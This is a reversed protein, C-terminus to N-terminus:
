PIAQDVLEPAVIRRRAGRLRKLHMHRAEAALQAVDDDRVAATIQDADLGALEVELAELAERGLAPRCESVPLRLACGLAQAFRELQPAARRQRVESVLRERLDLDSPELLFPEVGELVPEFGVEGEPKVGGYRRLEFREYSSVGVALTQACEEHEREVLTATLGVGKGGVLVGAMGEHFIEPQLGACAEALEVRRDQPLVRCELRGAGVPHRVRM